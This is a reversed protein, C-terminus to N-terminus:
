KTCLLVAKTHNRWRRFRPIRRYKKLPGSMVHKFDLWSRM